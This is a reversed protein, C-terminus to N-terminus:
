VQETELYEMLEQNLQYLIRMMILTVRVTGKEKGEGRSRKGLENVLDLLGQMPEPDPSPSETIPILYFRFGLGQCWSVV